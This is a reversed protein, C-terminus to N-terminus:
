ASIKCIYINWVNQWLLLQITGQFLNYPKREGMTPLLFVIYLATEVLPSLYFSPTLLAVRILYKPHCYFIHEIEKACSSFILLFIKFKNSKKEQLPFNTLLHTCARKWLIKKKLHFHCNKPGNPPNKAWRRTM